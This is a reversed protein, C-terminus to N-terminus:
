CMQYNNLYSAQVASQEIGYLWFEYSLMTIDSIVFNLTIHDQLLGGATIFGSSESGDTFLIIQYGIIIYDGIDEVDQKATPYSLTLNVDQQPFIWGNTGYLLTNSTEENRMLSCFYRKVTKFLQGSLLNAGNVGNQIINDVPNIPVRQFDTAIIVNESKLGLTVPVCRVSVVSLILLLFSVARM